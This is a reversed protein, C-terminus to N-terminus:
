LGIAYARSTQEKVGGGPHALVVAPYKRNEDFDDPLFLVASINWVTNKFTTAIEKM